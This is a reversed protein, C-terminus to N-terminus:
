QAGAQSSASRAIQDEKAEIAVKAAYRDLFFRLQEVSTRRNLLGLKEFLARHIPTLKVTWVQQQDSPGRLYSM